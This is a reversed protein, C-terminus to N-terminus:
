EGLNIEIVFKEELINFRSLDLYDKSLIFHFLNSPLEESIKDKGFITIVQIRSNSDDISIDLHTQKENLSVLGVKRIVFDKDKVKYAVRM